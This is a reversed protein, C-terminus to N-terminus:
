VYKKKLWDLNNRTPNQQYWGLEHTLRLVMDFYEEYMKGIKEISYNEVAYRRCDYPSINNINKAAWFFQELTRCRYGVKGHLVNESFSGFDTTIVPTGCLLSEIVTSGFPELYNTPIFTAKAGSMWKAREEINVVGIHEVKESIKKPEGFGATFLRCGIHNAVENVITWGKLPTPRALFFFYDEKKESFIYDNLDYFHPIVADYFNPTLNKGEVGYTYHMWAYSEFIRFPAFSGEYGIGPECVLLDSHAGAVDKQAYGSSCLLFDNKQKRKGIEIISNKIFEDHSENDIHWNFGFIKFDYTGHVKQFTDNSVVNINETCIPDSGEVGYHYVEHGLEYLMKCLLRVKQAFGECYYEKSTKSHSTALIHFRM